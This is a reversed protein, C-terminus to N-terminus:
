YQVRSRECLYWVGDVCLVIEDEYTGYVAGVWTEVNTHGSESPANANSGTYTTISGLITVDKEDIDMRQQKCQYKIEDVNIMYPQVSEAPEDNTCASLFILMSLM